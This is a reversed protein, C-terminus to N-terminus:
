SEIDWSAPYGMMNLEVDFKTNTSDPKKLFSDLKHQILYDALDYGEEKDHSDANTELIDSVEIDCFYSLIEAKRQWDEYAGLDPFLTVSRGMLCKCREPKLNSKAGAALWIFEPFYISSIIATKESEVIAVPITKDDTLLHEGFLCQRLEFDEYLLSHVWNIHNYPEKVRHGNNDYLMVKGTRINGQIDIQWFVTAGKWHKSTGIDYTNMLEQITERNFLVQLYKVFQNDRYGKLSASYFKHPIYDTAKPRKPRTKLVRNEHWYSKGVEGYGDKYPDIFYGCSTERDCRGYEEPLYKGEQYDKYRVFRKKQCQPCKFKKSSEDLRYRYTNIQQSM